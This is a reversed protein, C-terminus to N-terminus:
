SIRSCLLMVHSTSALSFSMRERRSEDFNKSVLRTSSSFHITVVLRLTRTSSARAWLGGGRLLSSTAVRIVAAGLIAEVRAAVTLLQVTHCRLDDQEAVGVVGAEGRVKLHLTDLHPRVDQLAM